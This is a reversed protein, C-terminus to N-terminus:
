KARLRKAIYDMYREAADIPACKYLMRTGVVDEIENLVWEGDHLLFDVGVFDAGLAGTVAEAISLQRASPEAQRVHGGLSYNSRFDSESERLVGALIKGGLMYLRMDVGPHDCFTQVIYRKKYLAQRAATLDGGSRILFVESGGHGDTSKMVFPFPPLPEEARMTEMVPLSLKRALLYTEWKDNAVRETEANNFVRVGLAELRKGLDPEITRMVAFDPLPSLASPPLPTKQLLLSIGNKRACTTMRDIFWANRRAGFEDYILIGNM